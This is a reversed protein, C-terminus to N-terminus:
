CLFCVWAPVLVGQLFLELHDIDWALNGMRSWSICGPWAHMCAHGSAHPPAKCEGHTFNHVQVLYLYNDDSFTGYLQIINPHSLPLQLRAEREAQVTGLASLKAKCYIKLVVPAGSLCNSATYIRSTKGEYVREHLDFQEM